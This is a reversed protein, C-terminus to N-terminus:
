VNTNWATFPIAVHNLERRVVEHPDFYVNSLNVIIGPYQSLCQFGYWIKPPVFLLKYNLDDDLLFENIFGFTSSDKRDDYLVFKFSGSPVCFNQSMKLHMKWAKIMGSNTKSIYVEEFGRFTPSMHNLHHMVSGRDDKIQKLEQCVVGEILKIDKLNMRDM